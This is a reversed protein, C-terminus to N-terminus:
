RRYQLLAVTPESPLSSHTLNLRAQPETQAVGMERLFKDVGELEMTSDSTAYHMPVVLKPEIRSIVEVAESPGITCHGGVPILLVDIDKMLEIQEPTPLNAIDGLHCVTLDDLVIIYATNRVIGDPPKPPNTRVGTVYVGKVEYEGPGDIITPEGGIEEIASHNPHNNSVTVFDATVKGLTYGSARAVPDTLVTAEKGRLRFCSHGHWFLEMLVGQTATQLQFTVPLLLAM